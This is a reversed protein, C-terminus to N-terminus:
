RRRTTCPPRPCTFRSNACRDSINRLSLRNCPRISFSANHLINPHTPPALSTHSHQLNFSNTIAETARCGDRIYVFLAGLFNRMRALTPLLAVTRICIQQRKPADRMPLACTPGRQSHSGGRIYIADSVQAYTTTFKLLRTDAFDGEPTRSVLPPAAVGQRSRWLM